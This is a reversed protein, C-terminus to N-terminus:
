SSHAGARDIVWTPSFGTRSSGDVFEWTGPSMPGEGEPRTGERVHATDAGEIAVLDLENRVVEGAIPDFARVM